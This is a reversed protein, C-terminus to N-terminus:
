LEPLTNGRGNNNREKSFNGDLSMKYGNFAALASVFTIVALIYYVFSPVPVPDGQAYSHLGSLYYNVGFYTMLITGFGILSLFNFSFPSKLHPIIGMHLIFSYMIITVLTWTEKPDWGWYRGWSENAWIGGLFNGIILLVLGVSLAMEVIISLEELVLNVRIHNKINRFIMVCLNVFALMAALGLFGYSATITAVHITLWYSKLVPVLNTIEPNMWSMHATLLTIGALLATVGLAIPSKKMFILGSLITVWSIYLMSEYGNSWPAHGSIYWRLILGFTQIVFASILIGSFVKTLVQFELSPKFIQIFFFGVLFVGLIMFVPFLRKFISSQNYFVELAVKSDSLIIEQGNERQYDIIEQLSVDAKDYNGSNKADSLQKTYDEFLRGKSTKSAAQSFEIPSGWKNNPDNPIPFVRLMSGYLVMYCVNVREDVYIIEKDFTSRQSPKKVYAENVRESLKYQGKEDIFDTFGAFDDETGIIKKIEPDGVKILPETNWDGPNTVMELFFQDASLGIYSDKKYLKVLIESSMTNIPMVRGKQNQVQLRGFAAAHERDVVKRSDDSGQAKGEHLGTFSLFFFLLGTILEKRRQRINDFHNVLRRFRTKNTFFSVILSAFLLFYGVYTVMTGWYDHNVSLITGQEDNDYSSQYFRYGKYSLINNMFIKYPKKLNERMDILVIDSAFSSPSNSGPYRDLQFKELKLYFPLQWRLSGITMNAITEGIMVQKPVGFELSTEKDNISINIIKSGHQSADQAPVFKRIAGRFYEKLLFTMESLKHLDMTNFPSFEYASTDIIEKPLRIKLGDGSRIIQVNQQVTTDGFSFGFEHIFKTEGEKLHLEHRGDAGGMIIHIFPDGATDAVIRELANGYYNKISFNVEENQITMNSTFFNNNRETLMVKETIIEDGAEITLYTDYSTFSNSTQGNRIHMLGEFGVYRTLGAGVIILILALHILLVNLQAKVYLKRTFIMGSFNVVMLLLLYEFWNANYVMIRATIADYDNEIFTAYGISFGFIILLIGM